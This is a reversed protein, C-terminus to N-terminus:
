EIKLCYWFHSDVPYDPDNEGKHYKSTIDSSTIISYGSNQVANHLNLILNIVQLGGSKVNNPFAAFPRWKLILRYHKDQPRLNPKEADDSNEKASNTLNQQTKSNKTFIKRSKITESQTVMPKASDLDLYGQKLIGFPYSDVVRLWAELDEVNFNGIFRITDVDSFAIILSKIKTFELTQNLGSQIPIKAATQLGAFPEDSDELSLGDSEKGRKTTEELVYKPQNIHYNKYTFKPVYDNRARKKLFPVIERSCNGLNHDVVTTILHRLHLLFFSIEFVRM